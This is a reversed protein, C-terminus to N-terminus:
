QFGLAAPEAAQDDGHQQAETQGHAGIGHVSFALQQPELLVDM